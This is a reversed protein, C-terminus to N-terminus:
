QFVPRADVADARDIRGERVRDMRRDHRAAGRPFRPDDGVFFEDRPLQLARPEVFYGLHIDLRDKVRRVARSQRGGRAAPGHGRFSAVHDVIEHRLDHPEVHAPMLVVRRADVALEPRAFVHHVDDFIRESNVAAAVRVGIVVFELDVAGGFNQAAEARVHQERVGAEDVAFAVAGPKEGLRDFFRDAHGVAPEGHEKVRQAVRPDLILGVEDDQAVVPMEVDAAGDARVHEEGVRPQDSRLLVAFKGRPVGVACAARQRPVNIQGAGIIFFEFIAHVIHQLFHRAFLEVAELADERLLFDALAVTQVAIKREDDLRVAERGEGVVPAAGNHAIQIRRVIAEAMGGVAMHGFFARLRRKDAHARRKRRADHQLLPMNQVVGRRKRPDEADLKQLGLALHSSRSSRFYFIM